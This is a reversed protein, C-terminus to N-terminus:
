APNEKPPFKKLAMEAKEKELRKREFEEEYSKRRREEAEKQKEKEWATRTALVKEALERKFDEKESLDWKEWGPPVISDENDYLPVKGVPFPIGRTYRDIIQQISLTQDPLVLSPLTNVEHDAAFLHHNFQTRFPPISVEPDRVSGDSSSALATKQKKSM